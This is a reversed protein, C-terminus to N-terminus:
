HQYPLHLYEYPKELQRNLKHKHKYFCDNRHHLLAEVNLSGAMRGIILKREGVGADDQLNDTHMGRCYYEIHIRDSYKSCNSRECGVRTHLM